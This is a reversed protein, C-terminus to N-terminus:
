RASRASRPRSPLRRWSAGGHPEPGRASSLALALRRTTASAKARKSSSPSTAPRCAGPARPHDQQDPPHLVRAARAGRARVLGGRTESMMAAKSKASAAAKLQAGSGRAASQDFPVFAVQISDGRSPQLGAAASVLQNIETPERGQGFQQRRRRPVAARARRPGLRRDQHGRERREAPLQRGPHLEAGHHVSTLRPRRRRPRRPRRRRGQRRPRRPRRRRDHHHSAAAGPSTPRRGASSGPPRAPAPARTPRRPPRRSSRSRGKTTRTTSRPQLDPDPRLRAPRQRARGRQGAGLVTALM